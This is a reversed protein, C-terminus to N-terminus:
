ILRTKSTNGPQEVVLNPLMYGSLRAKMNEMLERGRAETVQFHATGKVRDPLHLYYPMIGSEFCTRQLDLQDDLNDNIGKLLVAQNLVEAGADKLRKVALTVDADIERAHNIHLVVVPNTFSALWSLDSQLIRQPIVVPLRTHIRLQRIHKIAAIKETLSQLYSDSAVLPDGGSLIVEDLEPHENLYRLLRPWSSRGANNSDYDFHRRFCYRCHIACSPTVTLLVRNYYKHLLGPIPNHESEELPDEVLGDLNVEEQSSNLVQLLLPDLPNGKEMRSVFPLPVLLPFENEAVSSISLDSPDLQLAECLSRVDRIASQLLTQWSQTQWSIDTQQIM